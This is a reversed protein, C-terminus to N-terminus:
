SLSVIVSSSPVYWKVALIGNLGNHHLSLIQRRRQRSFVVTVESLSSTQVKTIAMLCYLLTTVHIHYWEVKVREQEAAMEVVHPNLAEAGAACVVGSKNYYIISPIKSDGGM